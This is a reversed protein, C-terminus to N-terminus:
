AGMYSDIVEKSQRLEESAAQVAIKGVQMVFGFSTNKLAVQANQEVILMTM